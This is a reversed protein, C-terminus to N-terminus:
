SYWREQKLWRSSHNIMFLFHASAPIEQCDIHVIHENRCVNCKM